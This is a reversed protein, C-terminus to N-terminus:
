HLKVHHMVLFCIKLLTKFFPLFIMRMRNTMKTRKLFLQVRSHHIPAVSNKLDEWYKRIGLKSIVISKTCCWGSHGRVNLFENRDRPGVCSLYVDKFLYFTCRSPLLLMRNINIWWVDTYFARQLRFKLNLYILSQIRLMFLELQFQYILSKM